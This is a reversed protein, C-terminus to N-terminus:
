GLNLSKLLSGFRPHTKISDYFPNVLAFNIMFVREEVGRELWEMVKENEGLGLLVSSVSYPSPSTAQMLQDLIARAEETRGALGHAMGIESLVIPLTRGLEGEAVAEDFRGITIYLMALFGHAAPFSTDMAVTAKLSAEAEAYRRAFYSIWGRIASTPLDVPDLELARAIRAIAQDHRGLQSLVLAHWVQTLAYEPKLAEAKRFGALAEDWKREFQATAWALSTHAEALDPDLELAKKAASITRPFAERPPMYDYSALTNFADALGAYPPAYHPDIAIAERYYEMAKQLGGQYRRNWAHRGKLYLQYAEVNATPRRPLVPATAGSLTVRLADAIAVSIEDQLAFVDTVERSYRESWIQFGDSTGSLRASVRLRDGVRQLSGELVAGVGLEQGVTRPDVQRGRYAFASGRSAVRLGGVKSLAGM